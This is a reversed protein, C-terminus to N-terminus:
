KKDLTGSIGWATMIAFSAAVIAVVVLSKAGSVAGISGGVAGSIGAIIIRKNKEDM